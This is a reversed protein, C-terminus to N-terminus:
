KTCKNRWYTNFYVNLSNPKFTEGTFDKLTEAIDKYTCGEKKM